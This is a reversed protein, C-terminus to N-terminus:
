LTVNIGVGNDETERKGVRDVPLKLRVLKVVLRDVAVTFGGIRLRVDIRGVLTAEIM